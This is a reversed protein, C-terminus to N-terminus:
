YAAAYPGLRQQRSRELIVARAGIGCRTLIVWINLALARFWLAATAECLFVREVAFPVVRNLYFLGSTFFGPWRGLRLIAWRLRKHWEGHV